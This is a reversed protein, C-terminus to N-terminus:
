SNISNLTLLLPTNRNAVLISQEIYTISETVYKSQMLVNRTKMSVSLKIKRYKNSM